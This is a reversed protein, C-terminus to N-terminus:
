MGTTTCFIRSRSPTAFHCVFYGLISSSLAWEVIEIHYTYILSQSYYQIPFNNVNNMQNIHAHAVSTRVLACRHHFSFFLLWCVCRIAISVTSFLSFYVCVFCIPVNFLGCLEVNVCHSMCHVFEIIWEAMFNCKPYISSMKRRMSLMDTHSLTNIYSNRLEVRNRRVLTFCFCFSLSSLVHFCNCCYCVSFLLMWRM